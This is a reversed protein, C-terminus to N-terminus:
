RELVRIDVRTETASMATMTATFTIRDKNFTVNGVPMNPVLGAPGRKEEMWGLKTLAGHYYEKAQDVTKSTTLMLALGDRLSTTQRGTSTLTAGELEPLSLAKYAAPYSAPSSAPAAEGTASGGCATMTTMIAVAVTWALAMGLKSSNLTRM